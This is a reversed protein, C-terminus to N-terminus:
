SFALIFNGHASYAAGDVTCLCDCAFNATTYLDTFVSVIDNTKPLFLTKMFDNQNKTVKVLAQQVVKGM